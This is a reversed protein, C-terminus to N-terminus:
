LSRLERSDLHSYVQGKGSCHQISYLRQTLDFATLNNKLKINRKSAYRIKYWIGAWDWEVQSHFFDLQTLAHAAIIALTFLQTRDIWTEPTNYKPQITKTYIHIILIFTNIFFVWKKVSNTLCNITKIIIFSFVNEENM